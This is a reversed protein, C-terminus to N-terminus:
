EQCRFSLIAMSNKSKGGPLEFTRFRSFYQYFIRSPWFKSIKLKSEFLENYTLEIRFFGNIAFNKSKTAYNVLQLLDLIWFYRKPPIKHWCAM